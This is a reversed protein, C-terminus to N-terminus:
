FDQAGNLILPGDYPTRTGTHRCSIPLYRRPVDSYEAEGLSTLLQGCFPGQLGEAKTKTITGDEELIQIEAGNAAFIVGISRSGYDRGSIAKELGFTDNINIVYGFYQLKGADDDDYSYYRTSEVVNSAYDYEDNGGPIGGDWNTYLLEENSAFMDVLDKQISATEHIAELVRVRIIYDRYFPLAIMTLIGIIAVTIMLEILSFGKM